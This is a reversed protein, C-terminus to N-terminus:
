DQAVRKVVWAESPLKELYKFQRRVYFVFLCAGVVMCGLGVPYYGEQETLCKGGLHSCNAKGADSVCEGHSEGKAGVCMAVTYYDVLRLVFYKPWTGGFNSFTNLLTLYTGGISTDSIRAFFAGQSVFMTTSAFSSILSVIVVVSIYGLNVGDAPFSYVVYMSVACLALRLVQAYVWPRTPRSGTSWRAAWIGLVIQCPFDLLVTLALHERKFGKDILILGTVADNAMFGIKHLLLISLLAQMNPMKLVQWITRYTEAISMESNAVEAEEKFLALWLTTALSVIGWFQMYPGLTIIGVDASEQGWRLYTNCFEPSNLALFITFSLFYGTNLGITQCTSAYELHEKSLLELAWGDVAIDQTAACLVLFVFMATISYIDINESALTADLSSGIYLFLIGIMTQTPIIWTKRRGIHKFFISDVIPSWFLKLSYPYQAFSFVGIDSYSLKNKLLFPVSGFALGVPIGQLLYLLVLLAMNLWDNRTLSQRTAIHVVLPDEMQQIKPKENTEPTAFELSGPARNRVGRSAGNSTAAMDNDLFEVTSQLPEHEFGWSSRERM